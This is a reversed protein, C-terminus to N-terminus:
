ASQTPDSWDLMAYSTEVVEAPNYGAKHCGALVLDAVHCGTVKYHSGM